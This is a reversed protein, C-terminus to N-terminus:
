RAVAEVVSAFTRTPLVRTRRLNAQSFLADLEAPGRERGDVLTMMAVDLAKGPHPENGPPLVADVVLVKGGPALGRRCSRLIRVCAEDSWDHLVHKLIYVDGGGPVSAFFDGAEARWRDAPEVAHLLHERLAPEQDFLVGSLGPHRLLVNRLLGGRGGGVDVVTGREPFPYDDAVLDDVPDSFAAMGSDFVERLAPDTALHEFFPSGFVAPFAPRGTRLTEGLGAFSRTLSEDTFLLIAAHLSGAADTRLFEAAPTLGFAGDDDERFIERSALLRLLRGLPSADAGTLRALEGASRPGAALHDALHLEAAARLAAAYLHSLAQDALHAAASASEPTHATDM